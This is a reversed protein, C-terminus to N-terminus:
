RLGRLQFVSGDRGRVAVVVTSDAASWELLYDPRKVVGSGARESMVLSDLLTMATETMDDAAEARRLMEAALMGSGAVALLAISLLVMAVIVEVLSFGQKM